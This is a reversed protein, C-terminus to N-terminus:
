WRGAAPVAAGISSLGIHRLFALGHFEDDATIGDVGDPCRSFLPSVDDNKAAFRVVM